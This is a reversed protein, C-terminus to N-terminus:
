ALEEALWATRLWKSLRLATIKRQERAANVIEEETSNPLRDNLLALM